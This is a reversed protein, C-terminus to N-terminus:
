RGSVAEWSEPKSPDGGKFRHGDEITGVAPAKVPSRPVEANQGPKRGTIDRAMDERVMAPSAKAAQMEQEMIDLVGNFSKQDTFTPLNKISEERDTVGSAGPVVARTYINAFSRAAQAFRLLDPDSTGREAVQILQNLSTIKGRPVADSAQRLIPLINQAETVASDINAQRTGLTREGAKVGFFNANRAAQDAGTTGRIQANDAMRNRVAEKDQKSLGVLASTDGAEAQEALTTIADGTLGGANAKTQKTLAASLREVQNEHTSNLRTITQDMTEVRRWIGDISKQEAEMRVDDRGYKAAALKVQTLMDNITLRKNQLIDTFEKQEAASKAQAEKFKTQYDQYEKAAREHNGEVYGELAGNLSAGAAQWNGRSAIGGILAMGILGMSLKQYEGADIEPKPKYTPLDAKPPPKVQNLSDIAQSVKAEQPALVKEREIGSAQRQTDLATQRAAATQRDAAIDKVLPDDPSVSV